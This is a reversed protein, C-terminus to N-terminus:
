AKPLNRLLDPSAAFSRVLGFLRELLQEETQFAIRLVGPQLSVGEPWDVSPAADPLV